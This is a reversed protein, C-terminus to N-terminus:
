QNFRYIIGAGSGKTTNSNVTIEINDSVPITITMGIGFIWENNEESIYYGESFRADRYKEYNTEICSSVQAGIRFLNSVPYSYGIDFGVISEFNDIKTQGYNSTGADRVEASTWNKGFIGLLIQKNDYFVTFINKSSYQLGAGHTPVTHVEAFSSSTNIIIFLASLYKKQTISM